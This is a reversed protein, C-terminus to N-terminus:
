DLVGNAPFNPATLTFPTPYGTTITACGSVCCGPEPFVRAVAKNTAMTNDKDWCTIKFETDKSIGLSNPVTGSAAALVGSSYSKDKTSEILCTPSVTRLSDM